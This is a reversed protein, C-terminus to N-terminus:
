EEYCSDSFCLQLAPFNYEKLAFMVIYIDFSYLIELFVKFVFGLVLKEDLQHHQQDIMRVLHLAARPHCWGPLNHELVALVVNAAEMPQLRGAELGGVVVAALLRPSAESRRSWWCRGALVRLCKDLVEPGM